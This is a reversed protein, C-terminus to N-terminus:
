AAASRTSADSMLREWHQWNEAIGIEALFATDIAERSPTGHIQRDDVLADAIHVAALVDRKGERVLGPSHHYAVAEVITFPLGWMGLLYAGIHAHTTGLQEQEIQYLPRGTEVAARAMAAFQTSFALALVLEGIDHVLGAAFAEDQGPGIAVLDRAIRGAMISRTQMDELWAGASPDAEVTAFVHATLALGKLLEIGLYTAAQHISTVRSSLGFCASNVLQLVKVSMAPDQVIIDALDGVAVEPREIADMLARYTRPVSPLNDLHGVAARLKEDSLLSQLTCTREVVVRLVEGDCPKSLFQHSVAVARLMAERDAHGSLVIRAARPYRDKVERLFTAGDMGPMRMDSVVVDCSWDRMLELAIEGGLAFRMDWVHRQRRLLNQLGDLIQQEDDVFLIRKRNM